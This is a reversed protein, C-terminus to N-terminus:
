DSEWIIIKSKGKWNLHEEYKKEKKIAKAPVELVRNFLVDRFAPCPFCHQDCCVRDV